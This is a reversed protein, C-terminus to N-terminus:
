ALASSINPHGRVVPVLAAHRPDEINHQVAAEVHRGNCLHIKILIRVIPSLWANKGAMLGMAVDAIIRARDDAVLKGNGAVVAPENWTIGGAM